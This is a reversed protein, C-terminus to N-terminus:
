DSYPEVEFIIKQIENIPIKKNIGLINGGNGEPALVKDIVNIVENDLSIVSQNYKKDHNLGQSDIAELLIPEMMLYLNFTNGLLDVFKKVGDWYEFQIYSVKTKVAGLGGLIIKYDLGEADIKLFDIREINKEKVYDDLTRLAYRKGTDIGMHFPNIVFSQSDEYYICDDIKQDSLGFENLIIKPNDLLSIQQKLSTIADKSPEFLHYTCDNKIKYFSLDERAGVDFVVSMKDKLLEFIKLEEVPIKPNPVPLIRRLIRRLHSKINEPLLHGVSRKIKKLYKKM